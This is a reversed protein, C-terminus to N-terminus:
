FEVRVLANPTFRLSMRDSRIMFFDFNDDPVANYRRSIINKKDFINKVSIGTILKSNEFQFKRAVSFDLREFNPLREANLANPDYILYDDDGIGIPVTYPIGTAWQFSLGFDFKKWLYTQSLRIRHKQEFNGPFEKDSFEPFKLRTKNYGYSLWVQYNNIRQHVLVDVGKRNEDGTLFDIEPLNQFAINESSIGTIKSYYGEVDFKFNKYKFLYGLTFQRNKLVPDLVGENGAFVWQSNGIEVNLDENDDYFQFIFQNKIEASANIRSTNSLKVSSYIRPEFFLNDFISVNSLRYGLHFRFSSTSHQWESILTHNNFSNSLRLDSFVEDAFEDDEDDQNDINESIFQDFFKYLVRNHTFEYGNILKNKPSIQYELISSGSIDLVKNDRITQFGRFAQNDYFLSYDSWQFRSILKLKSNITFADNISTGYNSLEYNDIFFPSDVPKNKFTNIMGIGSFSLKHKESFNISIKANFDTFLLEKIDDDNEKVEFNELRSNQFSKEYINENVITNLLDTHSRRAAALFNVKPSLKTYVSANLTTLNAGVSYVPEKPTEDLSKIDIIGGIRNGYFVSAGSKFFKTKETIFPNIASIEDFFHGTNYIKIGDWLVLNQDPSGGRIFLLSNNENPSSVGPLTQLNELVDQEIVGPLYQLKNTTINLSGDNNKNIGYTIYNKVVVEDLLEVKPSLTIRNKLNGPNTILRKNYQPHSIEISDNKTLIPLSFAGNVDTQTERKASINYIGANPITENSEEDLLIASINKSEKKKVLIYKDGVSKLIYESNESIWQRLQSITLKNEEINVFLNDSVANAYSFYLQHKKEFKAFVETLSAKKKTFKVETNQASIFCTYSIFFLVVFQKFM